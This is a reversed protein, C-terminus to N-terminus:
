KTGDFFNEVWADNEFSFFKERGLMIFEKTQSEQRYVPAVIFGWHKADTWVFFKVERGEIIDTEDQPINDGYLERVDKYHMEKFEDLSCSYTFNYRIKEEMDKLYLKLTLDDMNRSINGRNKGQMLGHILIVEQGTHTYASIIYPLQPSKSKINVDAFGYKRDKLYKLAGDICTMKLEFDDTLDGSKRKFKITKGPVFEKLADRFIDIKCSQGTLKIFSYEDLEDKEYMDNMFKHIIGYIDARLLLNIDFISFYISPFTKVTMLEKGKRVTLKWKDVLLATTANEETEKSTLM